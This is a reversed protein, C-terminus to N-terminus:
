GNDEGQRADLGTLFSKTMRRANSSPVSSTLTPWTATADDDDAFSRMYYSFYDAMVHMYNYLLTEGRGLQYLWVVYHELTLSASTDTHYQQLLWPKQYVFVGMVLAYTHGGLCPHSAAVQRLHLPTLEYVTDCVFSGCNFCCTTHAAASTRMDIVTCQDATHGSQFCRKCLNAQLLHQCIRHMDDSGVGCEHRSVSYGGCAICGGGAVFGAYEAVKAIILVDNACIRAHSSNPLQDIRETNGYDHTLLRRQLTSGDGIQVLVSARANEFADINSVSSDMQLTLALASPLEYGVSFDEFLLHFIALLWIQVSEVVASCETTAATQEDQDDVCNYVNECEQLLTFLAPGGYGGTLLQDVARSNAIDGESASLLVNGSLGLQDGQHFFHVCSPLSPDRGVRLMMQLTESMSWMACLFLLRMEVLDVGKIAATVVAIHVVEEREDLLQNRFLILADDLSTGRHMDCCQETCGCNNRRSSHDRHLGHVVVGSLGRLAAVLLHLDTVTPVAVLAHRAGTIESLSFFDTTEQVILEAVCLVNDTVSSDEREVYLLRMDIHSWADEVDVAMLTGEGCSYMAAIEDLCLPPMTGSMMLFPVDVHKLISQLRNFEARWTRCQLATDAEDFVIAAIVSACKIIFAWVRSTVFANPTVIIVDIDALRVSDVPVENATITLVQLGAKECVSITQKKAVTLPSVIVTIASVAGNSEVNIDRFADLCGLKHENGNAASVLPGEHAAAMRMYLSVCIAFVTKGMSMPCRLCFASEETFLGRLFIAFSSKQWARLSTYQANARRAVVSELADVLWLVQQEMGGVGDPSLNQALFRLGQIGIPCVIRPTGDTSSGLRKKLLQQPQTGETLYDAFSMAMAMVARDTDEGDTTTSDTGAVQQQIYVSTATGETHGQSRAALARLRGHDQGPVFHEAAHRDALVAYWRRWRNHDWPPQPLVAGCVANLEGIIVSGHDRPSQGDANVLIRQETVGTRSLANLFSTRFTLIFLLATTAPTSLYRLHWRRAEHSGPKSGMVYCILNAVDSNFHPVFSAHQTGENSVLRRCQVGAVDVLRPMSGSLFGVYVCWLRTLKSYMHLFLARSGNGSANWSDTQQQILQQLAVTTVQRASPAQAEDSEVLVTVSIGGNTTGQVNSVSGRSLSNLSTRAAGTFLNTIVSKANDLAATVLLYACAMDSTTVLVGEISLGILKGELDRKQQMLLAEPAPSAGLRRCASMMAFAAQPVGLQHLAVSDGSIGINRWFQSDTSFFQGLWRLMPERVTTNGAQMLRLLHAVSLRMYRTTNSLFKGLTTASKLTYPNRRAVSELDNAALMQAMISREVDHVGATAGGSIPGTVQTFAESQGVLLLVLSTITCLRQLAAPTVSRVENAGVTAINWAGTTHRLNRPPVMWSDGSDGLLASAFDGLGESQNRNFGIGVLMTTMSEYFTPADSKGEDTSAAAALGNHAYTSWVFVLTKALQRSTECRATVSGAFDSSGAPARRNPGSRHVSSGSNVSGILGSGFLQILVAPSLRLLSTDTTWRVWAACLDVLDEFQTAHESPVSALGFLSSAFGESQLLHLWHAAVTKTVPHNSLSSTDRHGSERQRQVESMGSFDFAPTQFAKAGSGHLLASTLPPASASFSQELTSRQMVLQSQRDQRQKVARPQQKRAAKYTDSSHKCAPCNKSTSYKTAKWKKLTALVAERTSANDMSKCKDSVYTAVKRRVLSNQCRPCMRGLRELAAATLVHQYIQLTENRLSVEFVEPVFAVPTTCLDCDCVPTNGAGSNSSQKSCAPQGREQAPPTPPSLPSVTTDGNGTVEPVAGGDEVAFDAALNM